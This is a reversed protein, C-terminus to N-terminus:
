ASVWDPTDWQDASPAATRGPRVPMYWGLNTRHARSRGLEVWRGLEGLADDEWNYIKSLDRTALADVFGHVQHLGQNLGAGVQLRVPILADGVLLSVGGHENEHIARRPFAVDNVPIGSIEAHKIIEEFSHPLGVARAEILERVAPRREVQTPLLYAHETPSKGVLNIWEDADLNHSFEFYSKGSQIVPETLSFLRGGPTDYYRHFGHPMTGMVDVLGRWIVYGNYILPRGQDLLDRGTSKRGDAWIIHDAEHTQGCSCELLYRGSSLASAGTTVKRITHGRQVNARRALQRNLADWSTVLGPFDSVNRMGPEDTGNVDFAFVRSDRIAVISDRTIGVEALMDLTDYRVGMVGGSQSFPKPNAEYTTVDIFGRRRLLLEAYPGVLSGGIIAIRPQARM